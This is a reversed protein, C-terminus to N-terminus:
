LKANSFQVETNGEATAKTSVQFPTSIEMERDRLEVGSWKQHKLQDVGEKKEARQIMNVYALMDKKSYDRALVETMLSSLHFGALTIFQWCYGMKALDPIFTKIQDDKMNAADWNFSPSLNYALMVNPNEAHIGNAFEQAVSLEPTPTEMWLMDAIEAFKLGRKVCYTVNGKIKYYGEESRCAEWDFTLEFGLESALAQAQPLSLDSAQSSWAETARDRVAGEPFAKAIAKLGAEPFTM